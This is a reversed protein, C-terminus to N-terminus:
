DTRSGDLQDLRPKPKNRHGSASSSPTECLTGSIAALQGSSREHPCRNKCTDSACGGCSCLIFRHCLSCRPREAM